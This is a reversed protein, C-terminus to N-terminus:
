SFSFAKMTNLKMSNLICYNLDPYCIKFYHFCNIISILYRYRMSSVYMYMQYFLNSLESNVIDTFELNKKCQVVLYWSSLLQKLFRCIKFIMGVINNKRNTEYPQKVKKSNTENTEKKFIYESIMIIM